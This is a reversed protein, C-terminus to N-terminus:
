LLVNIVQGESSAAYADIVNSFAYTDDDRGAASNLNTSFLAMYVDHNLRKIAKWNAFGNAGIV